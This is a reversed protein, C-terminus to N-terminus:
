NLPVEDVKVGNERLREIRRSYEKKLIHYRETESDPAQKTPSLPPAAIVICTTDDTSKFEDTTGFLYSDSRGLKSFDLPILIKSDKKQFLLKKIIVEDNGHCFFGKEPILGSVGIIVVNPNFREFSAATEEGLLADFLSVYKGGTLIFENASEETRNRSNLKFATMNNTLLSLFNRSGMMTEVILQLTSGADIAVSDLDQVYNEVIHDALLKKQNNQQAQKIFIYEDGVEKRKMEALVPRASEIVDPIHQVSKKAKPSM